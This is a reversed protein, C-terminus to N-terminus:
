QICNTNNIQLKHAKDTWASLNLYFDHTSIIIIIIM